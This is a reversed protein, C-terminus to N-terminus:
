SFCVAQGQGVLPSVIPEDVLVKSAINIAGTLDANSAFGCAQCVFSSQSVRNHKSVFGCRPCTQSTYHPDVLKVLVGAMKAKYTIFQRLQNFAWSKHRRRETKRVTTRSSIGKLDELAIARQTDKAKSVLRKSIIHNTNRRFRSERGSLKKLHRKASKTGKSQLKSKLNDTKERVRDVDEGSYFEGDSDVAIHVVGLDVGIAGVPDDLTQEPADLTVALYFVGKRLILDTQKIVRNLRVEQYVGIRIPIVQRGKLTLISVKDLGKFSLIRQDFVMASHPKFAVLKSKNRRYPEAVKGIARVAMQASLGYHERLYRYALHQLKVQGATYHSFALESLYNCAENFREMTQLLFTHQEQSPALKIMLTQIM